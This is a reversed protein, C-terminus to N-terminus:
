DKGFSSVWHLYYKTLNLLEDRWIRVIESKKDTLYQVVNTYAMHKEVLSLKPNLSEYLLNVPVEKSFFNDGYYVFMEWATLIVNKQDSIIESKKYNKTLKFLFKELEDIQITSYNFDESFVNSGKVYGNYYPNMSIISYTGPHSSDPVYVIKLIKWKVRSSEMTRFFVYGCNFHRIHPIKIEHRKLYEEVLQM